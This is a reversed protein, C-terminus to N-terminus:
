VIGFRILSIFRSLGVRARDSCRFLRFFYIILLQTHFSLADSAIRSKGAHTSVIRVTEGVQGKCGGDRERYRFLVSARKVTALFPPLKLKM